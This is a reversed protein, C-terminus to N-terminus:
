HGCDACCEYGSEDEFDYDQVVLDPYYGKDFMEVFDEMAGTHEYSELLETQEEDAFLCVSAMSTTVSQGTEIKVFQSIACTRANRPEAVIGYGRFYDALEDPTEFSQLKDMVVSLEAM